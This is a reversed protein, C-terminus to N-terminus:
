DSWFANAALFAKAPKAWFLWKLVANSLLEMFSTTLPSLLPSSSAQGPVVWYSRISPSPWLQLPFSNIRCFSFLVSGLVSSLERLVIWVESSVVSKCTGPHSRLCRVSPGDCIQLHLDGRIEIHKAKSHFLLPSLVEGWVWCGGSDSNLM